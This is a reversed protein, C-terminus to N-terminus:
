KNHRNKGLTVIALYLILSQAYTKRKVKNSLMWLMLSLRSGRERKEVFTKLLSAQAPNMLSNFRESVIRAQLFKNEVDKKINSWNFIIRNIRSRLKSNNYVSTVNATHQRYLISSRPIHGIKGSVAAVFSVWYDHNEFMQPVGECNKLLANNMMMTCGYLYNQVLLDKLINNTPALDMQLKLQKLNEDVYTFNSYVLLPTNIESDIGLRQIAELAISIKEPMWVDDQDCFMIYDYTDLSLHMLYSFAQASGMNKGSLPLLRIRSDMESYKQVISMTTDVSHDDKVILHWKTYEQRLISDLLTRIYKEGNYTALLIGVSAAKSM